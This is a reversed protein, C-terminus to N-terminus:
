RRRYYLTCILMTMGLFVATTSPEPVHTVLSTVNGEVLTTKASVNEALRVRLSDYNNLVITTVFADSSIAAGTSDDFLMEFRMFSKGNAASFGPLQTTGNRIKYAVEDTAGDFTEHYKEAVGSM